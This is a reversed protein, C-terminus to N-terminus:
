HNRIRHTSRHISRAQGCGAARVHQALQHSCGHARARPASTLAAGSIKATVTISHNPDVNVLGVHLHGDKGRVASAQVAPINSADKSYWPSQIEVPLATADQYSKFMEFAYYTPTLVMKEDKTLIMAQLVNIMQAINAMKVRDAHKTFIGINLAAM